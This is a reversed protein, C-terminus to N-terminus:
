EIGSEAYFIIKYITEIVDRPLDPLAEAISRIMEEKKM